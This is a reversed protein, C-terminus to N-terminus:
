LQDIAQQIRNVSEHHSLAFARLTEWTARLTATDDHNSTVIAGTATEIHAVDTGNITALTFAGRPEHDRDAPLVQIIVHPPSASDILHELQERMVKSDVRPWRLAAEDLVCYLLPPAPDKRTLIAQRDLVAQTSEDDHPFLARTYSETRLLEPIFAIQFMRLTTARREEGAWPRSEQHHRENEFQELICLLVNPPIGLTEEIIAILERPPAAKGAEMWSTWGTSRGIIDGLHEQHIGTLNRYIRVIRGFTILTPPPNDSLTM